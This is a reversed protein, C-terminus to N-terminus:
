IKSSKYKIIGTVVLMVIFITILIIKFGGTQLSVILTAENDTDETLDKADYDNAYKSIFAINTREGINNENLDWLLTVEIKEEKNPEILKKSLNTTKITNGQQEWIGSTDVLKMDKPIYDTIETAYGPIDGINKVKITYTVYIDSNNIRKSNIEKKYITGKKEEGLHVTQEYVGTNIKMSEIYKTLDLDFKNVKVKEETKDNEKDVDATTSEIEAKNTIIRDESNLESEDIEFEVQLDIYQIEEDQKSNYSKITKDVLKESKLVEAEEVNKVDILNGAKDKAYMEWQNEKNIESDEIFKLGKPIYEYVTKGLTEEEGLNFVRLTYIIHQSNVVTCIEQNNSNYEVKEEENKTATIEKDQEEKEISHVFKKIGLDYKKIEEPILTMEFSSENDEKNTEREDIDIKSTTIIKNDKPDEQTVEYEIQIDEYLPQENKSIDIGKLTKGVLYNSQLANESEEWKYKKNIESDEVLKLGTIKNDTVINIPMEQNGENFIRITCIVKQGKNVQINEDVNSYIINGEENVTAIVEKDTEINDISSVFKKLSLNYTKIKENKLKVIIEDNETLEVQISDKLDNTEIEIEYRKTEDNWVKTIKLELDSDLLKDYGKPALIEEIKYDEIGEENVDIVGVVLLGNTVMGNILEQEQNDKLKFEGGTLNGGEDSEQIIKLTYERNKRKNAIQVKVENDKSESNILNETKEYVYTVNIDDKKYNGKKNMPEKGNATYHSIEKRSTEYQTGVIGEIEDQASIKNGETDIYNIIVKGKATGYDFESNQSESNALENGEQSQALLNNLVKGKELNAFCILGIAFTIIVITILILINKIKKNQKLNNM